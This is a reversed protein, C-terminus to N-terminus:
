ADFHAHRAGQKTLQRNKYMVVFLVFIVFIFLWLVQTLIVFSLSVSPIAMTILSFLLQVGLSAGSIYLLPVRFVRQGLLFQTLFGFCFVLHIMFAIWLMGFSVWFATFKVSYLTFTAVNFLVLVLIEVIGALIVESKKM